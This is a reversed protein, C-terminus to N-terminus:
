PTIRIARLSCPELDLKLTKGVSKLPQGTAADTVTGTIPLAIAVGSLAAHGINGIALWTGHKGGNIARVVVDPKDAAKPLPRSPCAPLSLYAAQFARLHQPYGTTLSVGSLVGMWRPDGNVVAMVDPLVSAPGARETDVCQYGVVEDPLSRENLSQHRLMALGAPVRFADMAAPLAVSYARRYPYTMTVGDVKAYTSPDPPPSAWNWEWGGWTGPFALASELYGTGALASAYPVAKGVLQQWPAPDGQVVVADDAFVPTPESACCTYVVTPDRVGGTRLGDRVGVLFDRRATNWWAVYRDLLAKENRLRERTIDVANTAAAFRAIAADAFSIPNASPRPRLWVGLFDATGKYRLVTCDVIKNFDALTEPDTLDANARETWEIHTYTDKGGLTKCRRQPGLSDTESGGRGISGAYEYYPLVSLKARGALEVIRGWLDAYPPQNVWVSGGHPTSDWGQNYGFELLDKCLTDYGLVRMTQIKTAYFDLQDAYSGNGQTPDAIGDSMEERWFAHRWPLEKPPRNVTLHLSAPDAIERLRISAVAAGASGPMRKLEPQVIMVWMGEEPALQGLERKLGATRNCLQFVSRWTRVGNALPVDLVEPNSSTYQGITDSLGAGCAVGRLTDDGRNFIYFTRPADEVLDVELCYTALPKLGKGEGLRVAFYRGEGQNAMVRCPVGALTAVASADEPQQTFRHGPDEAALDVADLVPSAAIIDLFSAPAAPPLAEAAIAPVGATILALLLLSRSCATAFSTSPM